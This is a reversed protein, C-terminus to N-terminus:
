CKIKDGDDDDTLDFCGGKIGMVEELMMILYLEM